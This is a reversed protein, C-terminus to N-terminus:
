ERCWRVFARDSELFSDLMAPVLEVLPEESGYTKAYLAAYRGLSRNLAPSIVITLKIPTRDALRSLRLEAM